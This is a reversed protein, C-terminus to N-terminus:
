DELGFLERLAGALAEGDASGAAAKVSTVPGHLLKAVIARTLAEVAEREDTELGSLKVSARRLEGVRLAEARKQLSNMLPSLRRWRQWDLFKSSEEALIARVREIEALQEGTPRLAERLADLDRVVVGPVEACAPEIDRPVGLDLLLLSRKPRDAMAGAIAEVTIVHDSAGTSALVVDARVIATGLESFPVARGGVRAAMSEARAYTRNAVLVTAGERAHARAALESMKGAGVVLVTAGKLEGIETRAIELAASAFTSGGRAIETESRARRGTKIAGRFLASLIPGASGEDAAIRFAERVQSLIQPEGVVMSDIGGAVGFLHRVADAEYLSYLAPAFDDAPVNSTEVLFQRLAGFGAHYGAVCAYVEVRNCTSLIVGEAVDEHHSLRHLGKPLADPAFAFRELLDLSVARYSLGVALLAM